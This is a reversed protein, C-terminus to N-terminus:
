IMFIQKNLIELFCCCSRSIDYLFISMQNILAKIGKTKSRNVHLILNVALIFFSSSFLVFWYM